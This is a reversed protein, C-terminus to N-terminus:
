KRTSLEALGGLIQLAKVTLDSEKVVLDPTVGVGEISRGSPTLYLAVTIELKSGDKLEVFDQVSGKGYTREGIVVGRNRDQMAAAFMEAASATNRNVIIVLPALIPKPNSVSYVKEEDALKYSTIVGRKVFLRAVNVASEILGGPNNRLDIIVGSDTNLQAFASFMEEATGSSFNSIRFYGVSNEIQSAKVTQLSVKESQLTVRFRSNNRSALIEVASGIESRILALATEVSAGKVDTGNVELVQDGVKLLSNSAPSNDLIQSIELAGTKKKNLSIGIGTMRNTSRTNFIDLASNPFYNAWQDGTAKQAGEIAAREITSKDIENPVNNMIRSIANDVVSDGTRNGIGLGLVFALGSIFISLFMFRIREIKLSNDSNINKLNAINSSSGKDSSLNRITKTSPSAHVKKGSLAERSATKESATKNSATKNSASKNSASKGSKPFKSKGVMEFGG